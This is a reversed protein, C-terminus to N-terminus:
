AARAARCTFSRRGARIMLEPDRFDWWPVSSVDPRIVIDALALAYERMLSENIDSLRLLTEIGSVPPNGCPEGDAGVDVAIVTHTPDRQAERTPVADMVGIDCLLLDGFEVPPFVGPIAMSGLVAARLPGSELVVRRRSLLDLAVVSVPIKLESIDVDPLLSEVIEALVRRSLLSQKRILSLLSRRAAMYRRVQRFWARLGSVMPQDAAPAAEFLDAQHELFRDSRLYDLTRQTTGHIDGDLAFLSGALSGISVGAIRHIEFDAQLLKEIVGLHALGRAGGGGLALSVTHGGNKM